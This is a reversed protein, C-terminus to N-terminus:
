SLKRHSADFIQKRCIIKTMLPINKASLVTNFQNPLSSYTRPKCIVHLNLHIQLVHSLFTQNFTMQLIYSISYMRFVALMAHREFSFGQISKIIHKGAISFEVLFGRGNTSTSYDDLFLTLGGHSSVLPSIEVDIDGKIYSLWNSTSSPYDYLRMYESSTEIDIWTLHVERGGPSTIYWYCDVYGTSSSDNYYPSNLTFHPVSSGLNITGGCSRPGVMLTRDLFSSLFINLFCIYICTYIHQYLGCM